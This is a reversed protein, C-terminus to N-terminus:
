QRPHISKHLNILESENIDTYRQTSSLSSHGLLQQIARLDGGGSLLHTAFSHRLAHPTTYEPLGLKIRIQEIRRQIVRPSLSGGRKGLFMSDDANQKFPCIALYEKMKEVIEPIVPVDRYKSGKGLIRLWEGDPLDKKKLSLAENIRLGVGYLLLMVVRDRLNIWLEKKEDMVSNIVKTMLEPDISKPISKKVKPSKFISFNLSEIKNEKLAFKYFNKLSSVRRAITSRSFNMENLKFLYNRLINKDIEFILYKKLECFKFFDSMDRGYSSCTHESFNLNNKLYKLWDHYFNIFNTFNKNCNIM